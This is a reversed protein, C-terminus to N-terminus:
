GGRKSGEVDWAARARALDDPTNVNMFPDWTGTAFDVVRMGIAACFRSVRRSETGELLSLLAQRCAVPWLAVLHHAHGRSAACAPAPALAVALNPPILPTDGPVTLVAGAGRTAAWDLAALVGALPGQGAFRGDPLVPLGFSAWRAPDGNANLAVTLPALADLIHSLIPRGNLDLLAKDVGGMRLGAGGALVVAVIRENM